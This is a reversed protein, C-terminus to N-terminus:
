SRAVGGTRTPHWDILLWGRYHANIAELDDWSEAEVIMVGNVRAGPTAWSGILRCTAPLKAPLERVKQQMAPSPGVGTSRQHEIDERLPTGVAPDYYGVFTFTM